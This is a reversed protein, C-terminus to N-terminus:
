EMILKKRREENEIRIQPILKDLKYFKLVLAVLLYLFMPIISFLLRIMFDASEPMTSADGTYGSMSLMIGMVGTGIAAGLKGTFSTISSLTGEMRPKGKWENYEACDIVMLGSLMSIPVAGAGTLIAGVILLPFNDLAFFNILYGLSTIFIGAIILKTTSFKKIIPPFLFLLPLIVIQILALPAMLAVNKVIYTYYFVHIGMNAVFSFVFLMLAVTFIYRNNKLVTLAEKFNIKIDSAADVDNTEKITFFRLLGILLLPVAYIAILTRWGGASTALSAMLMPFSVNVIVAGLLVIISGYSSIAVYHEQKSFARVMYVTNNANLFTTFIANVFSYMVFIWAAKAAISFEPPCAFMLWTCLWVGIISLEYPRGRGLKTNTKDVFFGAFLDTIGDFIKSAMLLTGVLAAPIKLTDTCYITLFGLILINCSLSVARSQWLGMRVFGVKEKTVQKVSVQDLSVEAKM